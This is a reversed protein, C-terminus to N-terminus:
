RQPDDRILGLAFLASLRLTTPDRQGAKAAEIIKTAILETVRDNKAKLGTAMPAEWKQITALIACVPYPRRM